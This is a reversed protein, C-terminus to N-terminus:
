SVARRPIESDSLVKYCLLVLLKDALQQNGFFNCHHIQDAAGFV